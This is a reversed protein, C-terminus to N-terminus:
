RAGTLRARAEIEAAVRDLRRAETALADAHARLTAPIARLADDCRQPSPGVWTDAGASRYCDLLQLAHLRRALARLGAARSRLQVTSSTGSLTM